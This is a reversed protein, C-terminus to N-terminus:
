GRCDEVVRSLEAWAPLILSPRGAVEIAIKGRSYAIQDWAADSAARTAVIQPAAGASASAPWTLAGYSTRVVIAGAGGAGALGLAIRRTARDCRLTVGQPSSGFSALSGGPEARYTWAGPAVARYQWEAPQEVSLPQVVPRPAAPAPRTQPPQPALATRDGGQAPGVCSALLLILPGAGTLRVTRNRGQRGAM